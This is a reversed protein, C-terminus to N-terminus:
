PHPSKSATSTDGAPPGFYKANYEPTVSDTIARNAKEINQRAIIQSIQEKVSDQPLTERSIVKYIVYSALEAEVKSVGGVKLSFLEAAEDALFDKRFQQGLDTPPVSGIGLTAYIDKQILESEEGTILRAQAGSALDRLRRDREEPKDKFQEDDPLRVNRPVMVRTVHVREFDAIHQSYYEAIATDSPERYDKYIKERLLDTLMRLRLWRMIDAYQDTNELGANTAPQEYVLYEAYTKALNQRAGKSM